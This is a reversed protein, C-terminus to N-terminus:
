AVATRDEDTIRIPAAVMHVNMGDDFYFLEPDGPMIYTDLPSALMMGLSYYDANIGSITKDSRAVLSKRYRLPAVRAVRHEEIRWPADHPVLSEIPAPDVARFDAVHDSLQLFPKPLDDRLVYFHGEGIAYRGGRLEAYVVHGSRILLSYLLHDTPSAFARARRPRNSTARKASIQSALARRLLEYGGPQFIDVWQWTALRDPVDCRALRVPVIFVRGDPMMEAVKLAERIEKQVYGTKTVANPSLFVVFAKSTRIANRIAFDWQQGPLLEHEDLWADFGDAQLRAHISRVTEADEKAYSLFIHTSAM